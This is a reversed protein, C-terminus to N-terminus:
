KQHDEQWSLAQRIGKDLANGVVCNAMDHVAAIRSKLTVNETASNAREEAGIRAFCYFHM